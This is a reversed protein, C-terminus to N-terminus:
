STRRRGSRTVAPLSLRALTGGQPGDEIDVHGGCATAIRQTIRLGIGEGPMVRGFGPGDDQIEVTAAGRRRRLRLAVTGQLGAARFANSLLNAIARHLLVPDAYVLLPASSAQHIMLHGTFGVRAMEAVQPVLERLDTIEPAGVADGGDEPSRRLLCSLWEAQEAIQGLRHLVSPPLDPEGSAAAALMLIAALPQRLDHCVETFHTPWDSVILPRQPTTHREFEPPSTPAVTM